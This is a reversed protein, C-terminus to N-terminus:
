LTIQSEFANSYLAMNQINVCAASLCLGFHSRCPPFPLFQSSQSPPPVRTMYEVHTHACTDVPSLCTATELRQKGKFANTAPLDTEQM